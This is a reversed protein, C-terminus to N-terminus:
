PMYLIIYNYRSLIDQNQDWAVDSQSNPIANRLPNHLRLSKMAEALM